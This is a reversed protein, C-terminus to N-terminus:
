KGESKVPSTMIIKSSPPHLHVRTLNELWFHYAHSNYCGGPQHQHVPIETISIDEKLAKKQMMDAHLDKAQSLQLLKQDKADLCNPISNFANRDIMVDFRWKRKYPRFECGCDEGGGFFSLLLLWNRFM